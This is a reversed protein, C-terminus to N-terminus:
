DQRLREIQEKIAAYCECACAELMQRDLIMLHGRKYDIAGARRLDAAAKTVGPRRVGLINAMMEQTIFLTDDGARELRMLLVRCLRQEVSHHGNCLVNGAMQVMRATLYRLMVRHLAPDETLKERLFDLKVRYAHGETDVVVRFPARAGCLLAMVGSAGDNGILAVEASAGNAMDVFASILATTPFHVYNVRGIVENLTEGRKLFVPELQPALRLCTDHSVSALLKNTITPKPM